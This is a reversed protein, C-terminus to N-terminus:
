DSAPLNKADKLALPVGDVAPVGAGAKSCLLELDGSEDVYRKGIACGGGHGDAITGATNRGAASLLPEVGGVTISIESKPTKVVMLETTCVASFLRAGPKLTLGM